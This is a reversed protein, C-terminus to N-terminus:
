GRGTLRRMLGAKAVTGRRPANTRAVVVGALVRVDRSCAAGRSDITYPRRARVAARAEDDARVMGLL